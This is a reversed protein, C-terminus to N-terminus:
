NWNASTGLCGCFEYASHRNTTNLYPYGEEDFGIKEHANVAKLDEYYIMPVFEMEKEEKYGEPQEYGLMNSITGMFGQPSARAEEEEFSDAKVLHHEVKSHTAGPVSDDDDDPTDDLTFLGGVAGSLKQGVSPKHSTPSDSAGAKQNAKAKTVEPDEHQSSLLGTPVFDMVHGLLGSANTISSKVQDTNTRPVWKGQENQVLHGVSFEKNIQRYVARAIRIQERGYKSQKKAALNVKWGVATIEGYKTVICFVQENCGGVSIFGCKHVDSFKIRHQNGPACVPIIGGCNFYAGCCDTAADGHETILLHDDFIQVKRFNNYLPECCCGGPIPLGPLCCCLYMLGECKLTEYTPSYVYIQGEYDFDAMGKLARYEIPARLFAENDVPIQTELMCHNFKVVISHEDKETLPPLAQSTAKAVKRCCTALGCKM